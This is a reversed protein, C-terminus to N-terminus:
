SGEIDKALADLVSKYNREDIDTAAEDEFDAAVPLDDESLPVATATPRPAPPEPPPDENCAVIAVTLLAVVLAPLLVPARV